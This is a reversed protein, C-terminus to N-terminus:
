GSASATFSASGAIAKILDTNGALEGKSAGGLVLIYAGDKELAILIADAEDDSGTVMAAPSGEITTEEIDGFTPADDGEAVFGKFTEVVAVPNIEEATVMLGAMEAPIVSVNVFVTGAPISSLDSSAELADANNSLSISGAASLATWGEPYSVSVSGGLEPSDATETQTLAPASSASSNNTDGGGSDGGANNGCAALIVAMVAVAITWFVKQLKM